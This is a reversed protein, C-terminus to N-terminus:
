AAARRHVLRRSVIHHLPSSPSSSSQGDVRLLLSRCCRAPARPRLATPRERRGARAAAAERLRHPLATLDATRLWGDLPEAAIEQRPQGAAAPFTTRLPEHRRVIAALTVALAPLDLRGEAEIAWPLTRLPSGPQLRNLFWLRQQTFSVPFEGGGDPNRPLRGIRDAELRGPAAMGQRELRRLLLDRQKPTLHGLAEALEAM